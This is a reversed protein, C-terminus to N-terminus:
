RMMEGKEEEEEEERRFGARPDMQKRRRLVRSYSPYNCKLKSILKELYVKAMVACIDFILIQEVKLTKMTDLQKNINFSAPLLECALMGSGAVHIQQAPPISGRKMRYNGPFLEIVCSLRFLRQVQTLSM